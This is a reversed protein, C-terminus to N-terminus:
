KDAFFLQARSFMRRDHLEFLEIVQEVRECEAMAIDALNGPPAPLDPSGTVPQPDLALGDFFLGADNLGGQPFGDVYGFYVRGHKGAEAPVFWMRTDPVFYDENNGALVQEGDSVCFVLCAFSPPALLVAPLISTWRMATVTSRTDRTLLVSVHAPPGCRHQCPAGVVCGRQLIRLLRLLYAGTRTASRFSGTSRKSPSGLVGSHPPTSRDRSVPM